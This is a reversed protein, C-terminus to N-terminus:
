TPFQIRPMKKESLLRGIFVLTFRWLTRLLCFFCRWGDIKKVALFTHFISSSLSLSFFFTISTAIM